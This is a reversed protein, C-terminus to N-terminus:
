GNKILQALLEPGRREIDRGGIRVGLWLLVAGILPGAVLNIWGLVHNGTIVEAIMLGGQPLCLVLLVLMGLGQVALTLGQGGPPKKFPSEGPKPVPTVYRASLVSALGMGTMLVGACTGAMGPLLDWRHSIALSGLTLVLVAPVALVCCGIVRGWRDAKGSVGTAIHLAFATNDYSVDSSISWALLFAVLPGVILLLDYHGQRSANLYLVVPLLPVVLLSGMYRPDRFWYSATRAAVAGTPTAPFVNFFGLKGASRKGGTVRPPNVMARVMAMNWLWMVVALAALAIVVRLAAGAYDGVAVDAPLAWPAGFPTWSLASALASLDGSAHRFGQVTTSVVPGIFMIPVILLVMGIERFRRSAALNTGWAAACRSYLLCGALGLLAGILAAAIEQPSRWWPIVTALSLIATLAGPIGVLGALAMGTMLTRQPIGFAAFRQPDLTMDIGSAIIPILAWGLVAASGALVLITRALETDAGRLLILGILMFVLVGLGYLGGIALGVIQWPSRRFGNGLIQLKLRLLTAVM